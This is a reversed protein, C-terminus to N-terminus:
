RIQPRDWIEEGPFSNRLDRLEVDDALGLDPNRLNKMTAVIKMEEATLPNGRYLYLWRLNDINALHRLGSADIGVFRISLRQLNPCDRLVKLGDNSVETADLYLHKLHELGALKALGSDGVATGSLDLVEIKELGDLGDGRFEASGGFNLGQLTPLPPLQMGGSPDSGAAELHSVSLDLVFLNPLEALSQLAENSVDGRVKVYQLHKLDTLLPLEEGGVEFGVIRDFVSVYDHDRFEKIWAIRSPQWRARDLARHGWNVSKPAHITVRQLTRQELGLISYNYALIGSCAAVVGAIGMVDIVHLQLLTKRRRRWSHYASGAVGIVIVGILIDVLLAVVSFWKVDHGIRWYSVRTAPPPVDPVLAGRRVFPAPWGHLCDTYSHFRPYTPKLSDKEALVDWRSDIRGPLNLLVLVSVIVAIVLYTSVYRCRPIPPKSSEVESSNM